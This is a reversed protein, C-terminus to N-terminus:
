RLSGLISVNAEPQAYNFFDGLDSGETIWQLISSPFCLTPVREVSM